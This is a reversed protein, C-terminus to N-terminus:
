FSERCCYLIDFLGDEILSTTTLEMYPYEELVIGFVFDLMYDIEKFFKTIFYVLVNVSSIIDGPFTWPVSSHQVSQFGLFLLFFGTNEMNLFSKPQQCLHDFHSFQVM